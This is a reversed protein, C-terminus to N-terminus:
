RLHPTENFSRLSLSGDERVLLRSISANDPPMFAFGRSGTVLACLTGITGAHSVVVASTGGAISEAAHRIGRLIRAEFGERTEAGPIVDWREESFVRLCTPDSARLRIEFEGHEWEGMHVENLDALAVPKLGAKEALPAATQATRRLASTFLASLPEPALYDALARAQALGDATLLPDNHAQPEPNVHTDQGQAAGHRVLLIQRVNPALRFRQQSERESM